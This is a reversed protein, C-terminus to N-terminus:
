NHPLSLFYKYQSDTMRQRHSALESREKLAAIQGRIAGLRRTRATQILRSTATRLQKMLRQGDPVYWDNWLLANRAGYYDMRQWNRATLTFTHHFQLDPYHFCQLDALYARTSVEPEELFYGLEERFGGLDLFRRRHMLHGCGLFARVQYPTEQLSRVQPQNLRPNFIPFALSFLRTQSEAFRVADELSGVVPYSDDDLGLYYESRMARAIQNRRVIMGRSEEFRHLEAGPCFDTVDFPCSEISGDDFILVRTTGIGFEALHSLTIAVEGWRDRTPFGIEILSNAQM